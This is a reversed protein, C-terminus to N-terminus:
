GKIRRSINRVHELREKIFNLKKTENEIAIKLLHMSGEIIVNGIEHDRGIIKKIYEEDVHALTIRKVSDFDLIYYGGRCRQLKLYRRLEIFHFPYDKGLLLYKEILRSGQNMRLTCMKCIPVLNVNMDLKYKRKIELENTIFQMPLIRDYSNFKVSWLRRADDTGFIRQPTISEIRGSSFPSILSHLINHVVSWREKVNLDSFSIRLGYEIYSSKNFKISVNGKRIESSDNQKTAFCRQKSSKLEFIISAAYM